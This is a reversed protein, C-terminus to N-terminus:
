TSAGGALLTYIGWAALGSAIAVLPLWRVGPKFRPFV